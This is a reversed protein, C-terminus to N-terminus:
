SHNAPRVRELVEILEREASREKHQIATATIGPMMM